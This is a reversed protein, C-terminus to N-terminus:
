IANHLTEVVKINHKCPRNTQFNPRQSYNTMSCQLYYVFVSFPNQKTESTCQGVKLVHYTKIKSEAIQSLAM